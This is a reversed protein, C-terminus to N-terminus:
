LEAHMNDAGFTFRADNRGRWIIGRALRHACSKGLAPKVGEVETLRNLRAEIERRTIQSSEGTNIRIWVFDLREAGVGQAVRM